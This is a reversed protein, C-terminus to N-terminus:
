APIRVHRMLSASRRLVPLPHLKVMVLSTTRAIRACMNQEHAQMAFAARFGAAKQDLAEFGRSAVVKEVAHSLQQASLFTTDSM